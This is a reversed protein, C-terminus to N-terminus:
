APPGIQISSEDLNFLFDCAIESAEDRILMPAVAAAAPSPLRGTREGRGAITAKLIGFSREASFHMFVITSIPWM